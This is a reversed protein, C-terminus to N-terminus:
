EGYDLNPIITRVRNQSNMQFQITSLVNNSKVFYLNRRGRNKEM